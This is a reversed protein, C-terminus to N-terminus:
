APLSLVAETGGGEARGLRLAGGLQRALIGAAALGVGIGEASSTLSFEGRVFPDFVRDVVDDAIGPGRDLVHIDVAARRRQGWVSVTTGSPSFKLANQVLERLIRELTLEDTAVVVDESGGRLEVRDVADLSPLRDVVHRLAARLSVPSRRLKDVPGPDEVATTVMSVLDSLREAAQSLGGLLEDAADPSLQQTELTRAVGKIVTLPTRFEHSVSAIVAAQRRALDREDRALHLERELTTRARDVLAAILLAILLFFFARPLWLGVPQPAGVATDLPLLPGSAVSAALASAVAGVYRFRFTALIIPLYFWHLSVNGAGGSADATVWVAGIGAAILVLAPVRGLRSPLDLARTMWGAPPDSAFSGAPHM